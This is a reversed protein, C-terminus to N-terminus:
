TPRSVRVGPWARGILLGQATTAVQACGAPAPSPLPPPTFPLLPWSGLRLAPSGSAAGAMRTDSQLGAQDQGLCPGPRTREGAGWFLFCGKGIALAWWSRWQGTALAGSGSRGTARRGLRTVAAGGQGARGQGTAM